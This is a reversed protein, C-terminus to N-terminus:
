KDVHHSIQALHYSRIHSLHGLSHTEVRANALRKELGPYAKSPETKRLIKLRKDSDSFFGAAIKGEEFLDLLNVLMPDVVDNLFNPLFQPNQPPLLDRYPAKCELWIGVVHAERWGNRENVGEETFASYYARIVRLCHFRGFCDKRVDMVTPVGVLRGLCGVREQDNGFPFLKPPYLQIAEPTHDLM